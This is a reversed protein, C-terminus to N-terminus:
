RAAQTSASTSPVTVCSTLWTPMSGGPLASVAASAMSSAAQGRAQPSGMLGRGCAVTVYSGSPTCVMCGTRLTHLIRLRHTDSVSAPGKSPAQSARAPFICDSRSPPAGLM